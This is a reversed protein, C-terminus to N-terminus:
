RADWPFAGSRGPGFSASIAGEGTASPASKWSWLRNRGVVVDAKAFPVVFAHVDDWGGIRRVLGQSERGADRADRPPERLCPFPGRTLAVDVGHLVALATKTRPTWGGMTWRLVHSGPESPGSKGWTIGTPDAIALLLVVPEDAHLTTELIAHVADSDPVRTVSWTGPALTVEPDRFGHGEVLSALRRVPDM